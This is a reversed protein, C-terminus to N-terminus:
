TVAAAQELHQVHADPGPFILSTRGDDWRVLYPPEGDSGHVEVIEGDRLPEHEYSSRIVLRDGVHAKM